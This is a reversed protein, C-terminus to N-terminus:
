AYKAVGTLDLAHDSDTADPCLRIAASRTGGEGAGAAAAAYGAGSMAGTLLPWRHGPLGPAPVDRDDRQNHGAPCPRGGQGLHQGLPGLSVWSPETLSRITARRSQKGSWPSLYGPQEALRALSWLGPDRRRQCRIVARKSLDSLGDYDRPELIVALFAM